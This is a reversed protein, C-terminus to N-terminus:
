SSDGQESVRPGLEREEEGYQDRLEVLTSATVIAGAVASGVGLKSTDTDTAETETTTCDTETETYETEDSIVAERVKKKMKGKRWMYSGVTNVTYGSVLSGEMSGTCSDFEPLDDLNFSVASISSDSPDKDYLM